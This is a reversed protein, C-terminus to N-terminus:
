LFLLCHLPPHLFSNQQTRQQGTTVIPANSSQNFVFVDDDNWVACCQKVGQNTKFLAESGITAKAGERGKGGLRESEEGGADAWRGCNKRTNTHTFCVYVYLFDNTRSNTKLFISLIAKNGGYKM